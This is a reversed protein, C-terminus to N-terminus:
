DAQERDEDIFVVEVSDIRGDAARRVYVPYCGDGYGTSVCVGLGKVGNAFDFQMTDATGIKDCFEKWTKAPHSDADPTVCYCPDGVWCLGADVGMVGVQERTM